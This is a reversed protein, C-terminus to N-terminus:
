DKGRRWGQWWVVVIWTFCILLGWAERVLEHQENLMGVSSFAATSTHLFNPSVWLTAALFAVAVAATLRPFYRNFAAALSLLAVAGYIPMWVLPDPDNHQVAVFVAFVLFAVVFAIRTGM